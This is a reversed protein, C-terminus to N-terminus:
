KAEEEPEDKLNTTRRHSARTLSIRPPRRASSGEEGVKGKGKYKDQDIKKTM